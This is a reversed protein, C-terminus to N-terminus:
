VYADHTEAFMDLLTGKDSVVGAGAESRGWWYFTTDTSGVYRCLGAV